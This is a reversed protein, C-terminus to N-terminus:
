GPWITTAARRRSRTGKWGISGPLACISRRNTPPIAGTPGALSGKHTGSLVATHGIGAMELKTLINAVHRHVTHESLMLASAIEKDGLGQAVLRLVDLERATLGRFDTHDSALWIAM